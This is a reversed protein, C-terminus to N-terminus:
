EGRQLGELRETSRQVAEASFLEPHRLVVAEFAMEPMGMAIVAKYGMTEKKRTVLYEVAPIIGREEIMRWTRSARTHRGHKEYLVREYACVAELAEREAATNARYKAAQLQVARRRAELALEPKGRAEVNRAFQECDEPTKLKAVREDM